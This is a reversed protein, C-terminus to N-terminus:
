EFTGEGALEIDGTVGGFYSHTLGLITEEAPDFVTCVNPSLTEGGYWWTRVSIMKGSAVENAM